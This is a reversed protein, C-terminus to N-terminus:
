TKDFVCVCVVCPSLGSKLSSCLLYHSIETCISSFHSHSALCPASCAVCAQLVDHLDQTSSSSPRPGKQTSCTTETHTLQLQLQSTATKHTKLSLCIFCMFLVKAASQEEVSWVTDELEESVTDTPKQLREAPFM